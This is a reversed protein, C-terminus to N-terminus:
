VVKREGASIMADMRAGARRRREDAWCDRRMGWFREKAVATSVGGGAVAVLVVGRRAM